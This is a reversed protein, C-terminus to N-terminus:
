KDEDNDIAFLVLERPPIAIMQYIMIVIRFIPRPVMATFIMWPMPAPPSVESIAELLIYVEM